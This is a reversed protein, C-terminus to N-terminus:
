FFDTCQIGANFIEAPKLVSSAPRSVQQIYTHETAKADKVNSLIQFKLGDGTM